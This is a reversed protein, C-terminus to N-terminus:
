FTERMWDVIAQAEEETVNQPPMEERGNRMIGILQQDSKGLDRTINPALKTGKGDAGHCPACTSAYLAGGDPGSSGMDTDSDAVADTDDTTTDNNCASALLAAALLWGSRM